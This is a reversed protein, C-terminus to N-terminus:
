RHRRCRVVVYSSRHVIIIVVCCVTLEWYVILLGFKVFVRAHMLSIIVIHIFIDIFESSCDCESIFGYLTSVSYRQLLRYLHMYLICM